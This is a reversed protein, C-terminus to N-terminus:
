VHARGIERKGKEASGGKRKWKRWDSWTWLKFEYMKEQNGKHACKRFDKKPVMKERKGLM